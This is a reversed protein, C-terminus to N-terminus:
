LEAVDEKRIDQKQIVVLKFRSVTVAASPKMQFFRPYTDRWKTQEEASSTHIFIYRQMPLKQRMDKVTYHLFPKSKTDLMPLLISVDSYQHNLYPFDRSRTIYDFVTFNDLKSMIRDGIKQEIGERFNKLAEESIGDGDISEYLWTDAILEECHEEFYEDLAQNNILLLFPDRSQSEMQGLRATEETHWKALNGVYSRLALYRNTMSNNLRAFADLLMGAVHTRLANTKLRQETETQEQLVENMQEEFEEEFRNRKNNRYSPYFILALTYVILAGVTYYVWEGWIFRQYLCYLLMGGYFVDGLIYGFINKRTEQDFEDLFESRQNLLDNYEDQLDEIENKMRYDAGRQVLKRVAPKCLTQVMNEYTARLEAYKQNKKNLAKREESVQNRIADLRTSNEQRKGGMSMREMQHELDAMEKSKERVYTNSQRINERLRRIEDIPILIQGSKKNRPLVSHDGFIREYEPDKFKTTALRNVEDVFYTLPELSCDDLTLADEAFQYGTVLPDDLGLLQAIIAQKEPLSYEKSYVFSQLESLLTQIKEDLKGAIVSAIDDHRKGQHLLPTIEKAYFDTLLRTKGNLCNQAVYTARNVDVTTDTVRERDLVKLFARRVLYRTFYYKDFSLVSLGFATLDTSETEEALPFLTDYSETCVMALEGAIRVFAQRDLCLSVGDTNRNQMMFFRHMVEPRTLTPRVNIIRQCNAKEQQLFKPGEEIGFVPAMDASLGLIDVKYQQSLKDITHLIRLAEGVLTDEHLLVDICLHMVHSEGEHNITLTETYLKSFFRAVEDDSRRADWSIIQLYDKVDGEGYKLVYDHLADSVSKLTDGLLRHVTHRM